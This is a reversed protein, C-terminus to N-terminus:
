EQLLGPGVVVAFADLEGVNLGAQNLLNDVGLMASESHKESASM